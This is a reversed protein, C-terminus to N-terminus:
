KRRRKRPARCCPDSLRCQACHRVSPSSTAPFLQVHSTVRGALALASYADRGSSPHDHIGVSDFGADECHGVFEALDPLSLGVPVRLSVRVLTMQRGENCSYLTEHTV